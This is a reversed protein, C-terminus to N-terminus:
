LRLDKMMNKCDALKQYDEDDELEEQEQENFNPNAATRPLRLTCPLMEPMVTHHTVLASMNPWEKNLGQFCLFWWDSHMYHLPFM